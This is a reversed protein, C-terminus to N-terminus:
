VDGHPLGQYRASGTPLLPSKWGGCFRRALWTRCFNGQREAPFVLGGDDGVLNRVEGLIEVARGSLPVKHEKRASRRETPASWVATELDMEEWTALRVEGSRAATLVLFEFSLIPISDGGTWQIRRLDALMQACPLVTQNKKIRQVWPLARTLVKGPPQGAAM